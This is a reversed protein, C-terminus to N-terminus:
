KNTSGWVSVTAGGKTVLSKDVTVVLALGQATAFDDYDTKSPFNASTKEALKNLVATRDGTVSLDPCGAANSGTALLLQQTADKFGDLNFFFPDEIRGAFVKTKGSASILGTTASADGTVYDDTGVWCSAKQTTDFTCIVDVQAVVDDAYTPKSSVHFVYKVADSFKATADAFPFVTMSLVLNNGDMWTYVDNIDAAQEGTAKVAPSDLHDSSKAPKSFSMGAVVVATTAALTGFTKWSIRRQM